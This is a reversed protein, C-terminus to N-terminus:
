KLHNPAQTLVSGALSKIEEHTLSGPDNLARSAIRALRASSHEDRRHLLAEAVASWQPQTGFMGSPVNRRIGATAPSSPINSSSALAEAIANLYNEAM